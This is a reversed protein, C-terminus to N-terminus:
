APDNVHLILTPPSSGERSSVAYGAGDGLLVFTVTGDSQVTATVDISVAVGSQVPGVRSVQGDKTGASPLDQTPATLYTLGVEDTVYGFVAGVPGGAGDAIGTLVLTADFVTGPAV